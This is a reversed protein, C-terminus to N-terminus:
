ELSTVYRLSSKLDVKVCEVPRRERRKPRTTYRRLLRRRLISSDTNSAVRESEADASFRFGVRRGFLGSPGLLVRSDLVAGRPSSKEAYDENIRQM